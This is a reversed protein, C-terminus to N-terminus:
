QLVLEVRRNMKRGDRTDNSAIPKDPGYGRATLRNAAVGQDILYQRVSQARSESLKVNSQYNGTNDTHGAVEFNLHKNERLTKAVNDLITRSETSLDATGTKFQVNDLRIDAKLECGRNNVVTGAATGPCDDNANVIGDNDLDMNIACGTADVKVGKKTDPCKDNNDAIGDGDSDRPCGNADVRTGKPTGACKDNSDAVGDGDSDKACGSADVKIGAATGPCRDKSDDVGDNDSDAMKKMGGECEALSNSSSWFSTRLCGYTSNVINGDSDKWYPSSQAQLPLNFALTLLFLLSINYKKLMM